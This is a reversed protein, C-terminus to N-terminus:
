RTKLGLRRGPLDLTLRFARLLDSGLIWKAGMAEFLAPAPEPVRGFRIPILYGGIELLDEWVPTVFMGLSPNFDYTRGVLRATAPPNGVRYSLRAGTDLLAVELGKSVRCTPCSTAMRLSPPMGVWTTSTEDALHLAAEATSTAWDLRWALESMLDMGLLVDFHFNLLDSGAEMVGPASPVSRLSMKRGLISVRAPGRPHRYTRPSGTDLFYRVGDVLVLPHNGDNILDFHYTPNRRKL